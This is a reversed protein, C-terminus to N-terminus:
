QYLSFGHHLEQQHERRCLLLNYFVLIMYKTIQGSPLADPDLEPFGMKKRLKAARDDAEDGEPDM